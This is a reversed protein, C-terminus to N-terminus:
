GGETLSMLLASCYNCTFNKLYIDQQIGFNFRVSDLVSHSFLTLIGETISVNQGTLTSTCPNNKLISIIFSEFLLM